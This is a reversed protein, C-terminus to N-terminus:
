SLGGRAVLVSAPIDLGASTMHAAVLADFAARIRRQVDGPQRLIAASTRVSGALMGDWLADPGDLRRTFALREVPGPELGAGRLLDALAPESSCRFFPPGPPLDAPPPAAVQAIADHFVGLVRAREPADWWALAVRGGPRVVRALEAVVRDPEAFHGVGFACTAADFSWDAFPLAEAAAVEFRAAPYLRAAVDVMGAAVDVGIASAGREAARGAVHGTGSAVDLLRAGEEVGAADLLPEIARRTIPGFFREYPDPLRDWAEAEFARFAAPDLTTV